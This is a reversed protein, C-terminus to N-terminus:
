NNIILHSPESFHGTSLMFSPKIHSSDVELFTRRHNDFVHTYKDNSSLLHVRINESHRRDLQGLADELKQNWAGIKYNAQQISLGSVSM